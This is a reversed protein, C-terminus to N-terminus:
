AEETAEEASKKDAKVFAMLEDGTITEKGLLYESIEDLLTRNDKLLKVADAYAGDLLRRAATNRARKGNGRSVTVARNLDNVETVNRATDLNERANAFGFQTSIKM